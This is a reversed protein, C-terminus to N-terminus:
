LLIWSFSWKLVSLADANKHDSSKKFELQYNYASLILVWRQMRASALPPIGSKPGFIALLPKHDTVITIKRGYLFSHFKTVRLVLARAEKALQPYNHEAKLLSHNAYAILREIVNPFRHSLVAGIAFSSADCALVLPLYPDYQCLVDASALMSKLKSWEM